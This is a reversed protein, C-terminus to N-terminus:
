QTAKKIADQVRLVLMVSTSYALADLCLICGVIELASLMDPAAAVLRDEAENREGM